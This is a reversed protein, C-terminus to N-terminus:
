AWHRPEDLAEACQITGRVRGLVGPTLEQVMWADDHGARIPHPAELGFARAPRFGFKPYYDPHGLVFVLEVGAGALQKLGDRVLREGVGAGQHEPLVALPAMIRAVVAQESGHVRAATFLVHGVIRGDIAAALSLVPAATEDRSLERFLKAIEPGEARGFAERHVDCVAALDTQNTHRIRM